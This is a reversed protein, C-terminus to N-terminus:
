CFGVLFFLFIRCVCCGWERMKAEMVRWHLACLQMIVVIRCTMRTKVAESPTKDGATTPAPLLFHSSPSHESQCLRYNIITKQWSYHMLFRYLAGFPRQVLTSIKLSIQGCKIPLICHTNPPLHHFRDATAARRGLLSLEVPSRKPTEIILPRTATLPWAHLM